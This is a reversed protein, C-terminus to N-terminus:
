GPQQYLGFINGAPDSFRATMEPADMGVAQVIKGGHAIITDITAAINDVMIYTLMGAEKAARRGTVWTGSVGNVTDDFAIHGDGRKRTKWGFVEKYFFASSNIDIAPIEIYCIKGNASTPHKDNEM